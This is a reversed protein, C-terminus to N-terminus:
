KMESVCYLHKNSRLFLEGKSIAPTASFEETELTVQNIALQKFEKGASLVYTEGNRAVFYIKGDAM